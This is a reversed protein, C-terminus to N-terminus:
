KRSRLYLRIYGALGRANVHNLVDECSQHCSRLCDTENRNISKEITRWGADGDRRIGCRRTREGDFDISRLGEEHRRCRVRSLADLLPQFKDIMAAVYEPNAGLVAPRVHSSRNERSGEIEHALAFNLRVFVVIGEEVFRRAIEGGGIVDHSQFRLGFRHSSNKAFQEVDSEM